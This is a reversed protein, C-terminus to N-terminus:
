TLQRNKRRRAHPLIYAAFITSASGASPAYASDGDFHSAHDADGQEVSDHRRTVNSWHAGGDRTVWILCRDTGAWITNTRSAPRLARSREPPLQDAKPNKPPWRASARRIGPHAGGDADPSIRRCTQRTRRKFLTNALLLPHTSRGALLDGSRATSAIRAACRSRLSTRGGPRHELPIAHGRHTRRRLRHRSRTIPLSTATNSRAGGSGIPFTIEGTIAPAHMCVSGSEQKARQLGSVSVDSHHRRSLAAPPRSNYWSTWTKGAHALRDGGPRQGPPNTNSDGRVSGSTQYRRRGTRRSPGV